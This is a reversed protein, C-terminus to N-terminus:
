DLCAFPQFKEIKKKAIDEKEQFSKKQDMHLILSFPTYGQKSTTFHGITSSHYYM